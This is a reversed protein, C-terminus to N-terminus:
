VTPVRQDNIVVQLPVQETNNLYLYKNIELKYHVLARTNEECTQENTTEVIRLYASQDNYLDEIKKIGKVEITVTLDEETIVDPVYDSFHEKFYNAKVTVESIESNQMSCLLDILAQPVFQVELSLVLHDDQFIESSGQKIEIKVTVDDRKTIQGQGPKVLKKIINGDSYVDFPPLEETRSIDTM